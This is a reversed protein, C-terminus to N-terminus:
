NLIKKEKPGNHIIAHIINHVSGFSQGKELLWFNKNRVVEM